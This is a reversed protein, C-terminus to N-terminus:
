AMPSNSLDRLLQQVPELDRHENLRQGVLAVEHETRVSGSGRAIALAERAMNAGAEFQGAYVQAQAFLSCATGRDRRYVPPLTPLVLEYVQV